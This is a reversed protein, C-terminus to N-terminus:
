VRQFPGLFAAKACHLKVKHDAAIRAGHFQPAAQSELGNATQRQHKLMGGQSKHIREHHVTFNGLNAVNHFFRAVGSYFCGIKFWCDSIGSIAICDLHRTLQVIAPQGQIRRWTSSSCAPPFDPCRLRTLPTPLAGPLALPRPRALPLTVSLAVSFIGGAFRLGTASRLFFRRSTQMTRACTLTFLHPLLGGRRCYHRRCPLGRTTCSWIPPSPQGPGNLTTGALPRARNRAACAALFSFGRTPQQLRM